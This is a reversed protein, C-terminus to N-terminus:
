NDTLRYAILDAGVLGVHGWKNRRLVLTFVGKQDGQFLQSRLSEAIPSIPIYGYISEWLKDRMVFARYEHEGGKWGSLRFPRVSNWYKDYGGIFSTSISITGVINFPQELFQEPASEVETISRTPINTLDYSEASPLRVLGGVNREVVFAIGLANVSECDKTTIQRVVSYGAPMPSGDCVTLTSPVVVASKRAPKRKQAFVSPTLFLVLMLILFLQKM